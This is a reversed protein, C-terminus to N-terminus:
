VPPPASIVPPTRVSSVFENIYSGTASEMEVIALMGLGVLLVRATFKQPKIYTNPPANLAGEFSTSM